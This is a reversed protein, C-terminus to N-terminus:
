SSWFKFYLMMDFVYFVQGFFLFINLVEVVGLIIMEIQLLDKFHGEKEELQM